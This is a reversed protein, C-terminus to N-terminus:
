VRAGGLDAWKGENFLRRIGSRDKWGEGRYPQSVGLGSYALFTGLPISFIREKNKILLDFHNPLIELPM